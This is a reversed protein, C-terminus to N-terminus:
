VSLAKELVEYDFGNKAFFNGTHVFGHKIYFPIASFRANCWLITGGEAVVFDTIYSLLNSGVGMKQYAPEVAFKRFQFGEGKKFLSVVAV